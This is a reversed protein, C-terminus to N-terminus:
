SVETEDNFIVDLVPELSRIKRVHHVGHGIYIDRIDAKVLQKTTFHISDRLIRWFFQATTETDLQGPRREREKFIQAVLESM